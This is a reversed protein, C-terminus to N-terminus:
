DRWHKHARWNYKEVHDADQFSKGSKLRPHRHIAEFIRQWHPDSTDWQPQLGNVDPDKDPVMDVALGYEHPSQGPPAAKPGGALFKQYLAAQEVGTRLGYLIYWTAPDPDLISKLDALFEPELLLPNISRWQIM